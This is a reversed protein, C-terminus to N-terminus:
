LILSPIDVLIHYEFILNLTFHNKNFILIFILVQAMRLSKVIYLIKISRQSLVPISLGIINM